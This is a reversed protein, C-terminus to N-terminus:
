ESFFVRKVRESINTLIEYPITDTWTALEQITPSAGFVIVDDGQECSVDTVDLITMDMCINGITPARKDNINMEGVGNGFARLYGDAYGIAVVAITMDKQAKGGRNYGISEGKKIDRIQSITTKLSSVHRLGLKTTSDFGHLGIGLRVM